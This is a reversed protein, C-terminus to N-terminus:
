IRLKQHSLVCQHGTGSICEVVNRRFMTPKKKRKSQTSMIAPPAICRWRGFKNNIKTRIGFAPFFCIAPFARSTKMIATFRDSTNNPQEMQPAKVCNLEIRKMLTLGKRWACECHGNFIWNAVRKKEYRKGNCGNSFFPSSSFGRCTIFASRLFCWMTVAYRFSWAILDQFFGNAGRLFIMKKQSSSFFIVGFITPKGHQEVDKYKM